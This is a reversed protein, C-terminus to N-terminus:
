ISRSLSRLALGVSTAYELAEQAHIGPVQEDFSLLNHWVNGVEVPVELSAELYEVLGHMNANGGALVIREIDDHEKSSTNSIHMQWYMLHKRITDAMDSMIPLLANYVLHSEQTDSFGHSRKLKEAEQFSVDLTRAIARTLDDGGAELGATFTVNGHTSISLSADNRGIDVVLTPKEGRSDLLARATAQGEIELSLPHIGADEFVRAYQLAITLPYVSVNLEQKDKTVRITNHDFVAEDAGIPVNEKLHFELMQETEAPPALPLEMQFLYAHEEPLAVHAHLIGYEDRIRRLLKTISGSDTIEGREIVDLPLDLKGYAGLSPTGKHNNLSVYKIAHDSIDIGAAPMTLYEPPPFLRAVLSTTSYPSRYM